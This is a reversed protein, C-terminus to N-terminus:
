TDCGVKYESSKEVDFGLCRNAVQDLTLPNIDFLGQAGKFPWPGIHTPREALVWCWPGEVFPHARIWPYQADHTGARIEEVPLCDLLVAIGVVKGFHLSDVREGTAACYDVGDVNKTVLAERSKGAHIYLRGRYKTPWTRNEVRKDGRMILRVHPQLITLARM